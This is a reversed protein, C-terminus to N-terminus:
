NDFRIAVVRYERGVVPQLSRLPGVSPPCMSHLRHADRGHVGPKALYYGFRQERKHVWGEM